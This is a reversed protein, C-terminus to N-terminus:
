KEVSRIKAGEAVTEGLNLAIREGVSVGSLVQVQTGDNNAVAIRRYHVRDASDVVPVFVSDGRVVLAAVPIQPRPDTAIALAVNVFSGALIARSRNDLDV